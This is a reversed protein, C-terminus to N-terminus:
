DITNDPRVLADVFAGPVFVKASRDVRRHNIGRGLPSHNRDGAVQGGIPPTLSQPNVTHRWTSYSRPLVFLEIAAIGRTDRHASHCSSVLHDPGHEIQRRVGRRVHITLVDAHIAAPRRPLGSPQDTLM